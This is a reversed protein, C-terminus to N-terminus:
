KTIAYATYQLDLAGCNQLVSKRGARLEVLKNVSACSSDHFRKKLCLAGRLPDVIEPNEHNLDFSGICKMPGRTLQAFEILLEMPKKPHEIGARLEM